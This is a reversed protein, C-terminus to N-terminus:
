HCLYWHEYHRGDNRLRCNNWISIQEAYRTRQFSEKLINFIQRVIVEGYDFMPVYISEGNDWEFDLVCECNVFELNLCLDFYDIIDSNHKYYESWSMLRSATQVGFLMHKIAERLILLGEETPYSNYERCIEYVLECTKQLDYSFDNDHITVKLYTYDNSM